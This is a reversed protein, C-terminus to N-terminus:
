SPSIVDVSLSADYLTNTSASSLTCPFSKPDGVTVGWWGVLWDCEYDHGVGASLAEGVLGGGRELHTRCMDQLEGIRVRRQLGVGLLRGGLVEAVLELALGVRSRRGELGLALLRGGLADTVSEAGVRVIILHTNIPMSNM